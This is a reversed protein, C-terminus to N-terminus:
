GPNQTETTQNEAENQRQVWCKPKSHRVEIQRHLKGIIQSATYAFLAPMLAHILAALGAAILSVALRMAFLCHQLYTENVSAPHEVFSRFFWSVYHVLRNKQKKM